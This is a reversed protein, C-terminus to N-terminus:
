KGLESNQRLIYGHNEEGVDDSKAGKDREAECEFLYFPRPAAFGERHKGQAPNRRRDYPLCGVFHAITM